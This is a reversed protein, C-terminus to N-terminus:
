KDTIYIIVKKGNNLWQHSTIKYGNTMQKRSHLVEDEYDFRSLHKIPMGTTPNQYVVVTRVYSGSNGHWGAFGEAVSKKASFSTAGKETWVGGNILANLGEQPTKGHKGYFKLGRYQTGVYVPSTPNDIIADIVDNGVTNTNNHMATFGGGTFNWVTAEDNIAQDSSTNLTNQLWQIREDQPLRNEGFANIDTIQPHQQVQSVKVSATNSSTMRGSRGRGM